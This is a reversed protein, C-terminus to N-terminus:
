EAESQDLQLVFRADFVRRFKAPLHTERFRELVQRAEIAAEITTQPQSDRVAAPIPDSPPERRRRSAYDIALNRAVVGIWARLSGGQKKLCFVAYSILRYFLEHIVTEKDAGELIRGIAQEATDFHDVYCEHLVQRDGR